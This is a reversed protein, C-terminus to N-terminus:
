LMMVQQLWLERYIVEVMLNGLGTNGRSTKQHLHQPRGKGAPGEGRHQVHHPARCQPSTGHGALCGVLTGARSAVLWSVLCGLLWAILYGLLSWVDLRSVM